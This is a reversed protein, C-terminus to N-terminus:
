GPDRSPHTTSWCSATGASSASTCDSVAAPMMRASAVMSTVASTPQAGEKAQKHAAPVLPHCCGTGADGGRNTQYRNCRLVASIVRPPLQDREHDSDERRGGDRQPASAHPKARLDSWGGFDLRLGSVPFRLVIVRGMAGPGGEM